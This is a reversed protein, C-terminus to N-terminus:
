RELCAVAQMAVTDTQIQRQFVRMERVPKCLHLIRSKSRGSKFVTRLSRLSHLRYLDNERAGSDM